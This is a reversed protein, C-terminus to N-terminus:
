ENNNKVILFVKLLTKFFYYVPPKKNLKQISSFITLWQVRWLLKWFEATCFAINFKWIRLFFLNMTLFSRLFFCSKANSCMKQAMFFSSFDVIPGNSKNREVCIKIPLAFLRGSQEVGGKVGLWRVWCRFLLLPTSLFSAHAVINFSLLTSDSKQMRHFHLHRLVHWM